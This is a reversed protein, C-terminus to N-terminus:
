LVIPSFLSMFNSNVLISGEKQMRTSLQGRGSLSDNADPTENIGDITDCEM